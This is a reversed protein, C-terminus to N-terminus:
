RLITERYLACYNKSMEKASFKEQVTKQAASAIKRRLSKDKIIKTISSTFGNVDNPEHIFGNQENIIATNIDGVNSTVVPLGSAMAELLSIPMGEKLSTMLYIDLCNLIRKIDSRHGTFIVYEKLKRENVETKISEFRPGDGVILLRVDTFGRNITERLTKIATTHGKEVSLSSIMGILIHKISVGLLERLKSKEQVSIRVSFKEYDIGNAIITTKNGYGLKKLEDHIPKSVAVIHKFYRMLWSDIISYLRLKFTTRKWLHNTAILPKRTYALVAYFDEQYGHCHILDIKNIYVFAKIKKALNLNFTTSYRFVKVPINSDNAVKIFKQIM